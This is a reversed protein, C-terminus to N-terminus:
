VNEAKGKYQYRLFRSGTDVPEIGDIQMILARIKKGNIFRNSRGVHYKKKLRSSVNVVSLQRNSHKFIEQIDNRLDEDTVAIDAM